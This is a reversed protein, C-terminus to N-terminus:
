PVEVTLTKGCFGLVSDHAAVVVRDVDIAVDPLSRTFPQESEHPHTLIREALLTGDAASVTWADAYKDWGEDDSRVTVAIRYSGDKTGVIEVGIVDACGDPSSSEDAPASTSTSTSPPGSPAPLDTM